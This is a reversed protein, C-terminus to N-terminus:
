GEREYKWQAYRDQMAKQAQKETSNKDLTVRAEITKRNYPYHSVEKIYNGKEFTLRSTHVKAFDGFSTKEIHGSWMKFVPQVSDFHHEATDFEEIYMYDSNGKTACYLEAQEKDDFVAEICYDSYCGSTVVYVIM